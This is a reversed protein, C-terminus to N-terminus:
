PLISQVLIWGKVSKKRPNKNILFSINGEHLKYAKIFDYRKMLVEENTKLNKWHYITNDKLKRTERNPDAWAALSAKRKNERAKLTNHSEKHRIIREEGWEFNGGGGTEPIRNAWIKNGFDDMANVIKYYNSWYRGADTLEDWLETQFIIETTHASGYKRLHTMWDVGSGRYRFPNQKTQCLYKLGTHQHTKILLYYM